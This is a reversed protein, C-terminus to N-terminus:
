RTEAEGKTKRGRAALSVARVHATMQGTANAPDAKGATVARKQAERETERQLQRAADEESLRELVRWGKAKLEDITKQAWAAFTYGEQEDRGDFGFIYTETKKFRQKEPKATEPPAENREAVPLPQRLVLFFDRARSM